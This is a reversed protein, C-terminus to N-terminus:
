EVFEKMFAMLERYDEKDAANIMAEIYRSRVQDGESLLQIQPWKPLPHKVSHFFIDTILRASIAGCLRQPRRSPPTYFIRQSSQTETTFLSECYDQFVGNTYHSGASM